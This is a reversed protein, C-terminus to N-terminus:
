SLRVPVGARNIGLLPDEVTERMRVFGLSALQTLAIVEVEVFM